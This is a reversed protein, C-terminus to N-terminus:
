LAGYQVGFHELMQELYYQDGYGKEFEPSAGEPCEEGKICATIGKAYDSMLLSRAGYSSLIYVYGNANGCLLRM